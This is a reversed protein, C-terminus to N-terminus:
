DAVRRMEQALDRQYTVVYRGAAFRHTAHEPHILAWESEAEITPGELVHGNVPWRISVRDGVVIHRSGQSVDVAVQRSEVEGGLEARTTILRNFEYIDEHRNVRFVYVDGQHAVQGVTMHRNDRDVTHAPAHTIERIAEIATKM